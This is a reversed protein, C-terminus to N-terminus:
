NYYQETRQPCDKHIWNGVQKEQIPYQEKYYVLMDDDVYAFIMLLSRRDIDTYKSCIFNFFAKKKQILKKYSIKDIDYLLTELQKGALSLAYGQVDKNENSRIETFYYNLM